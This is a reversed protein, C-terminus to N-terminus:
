NTGVIPHMIGMSRVIVVNFMKENEVNMPFTEEEQDEEMFLNKKDNNQDHPQYNGRGRGRGSGHYGGRRQNCRQENLTLKSELAQEIIAPGDNKM